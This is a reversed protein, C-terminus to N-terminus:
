RALVKARHALRTALPASRRRRSKFLAETPSAAPARLDGIIAVARSNDHSGGRDGTTSPAAAPADADCEDHVSAPSVGSTALTPGVLTEGSDFQAPQSDTRAPRAQRPPNQRRSAMTPFSYCYILLSIPRQPVAPASITASRRRRSKCFHWALATRFSQM